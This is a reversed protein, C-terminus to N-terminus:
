FPLDDYEERKEDNGFLASVLDAVEEDSYTKDKIDKQIGQRQEEFLTLKNNNIIENMKLKTVGISHVYNLELIQEYNFNHKLLVGELKFEPQGILLPVHLVKILDEINELYVHEIDGVSGTFFLVETKLTKWLEDFARENLFNMFIVEIMIIPLTFLPDKKYYVKLYTDGQSLNKVQKKNSTRFLNYIITEVGLYGFYGMNAPTPLLPIRILSIKEPLEEIADVIEESIVTNRKDLFYCCCPCSMVEDCITAEVYCREADTRKISCHPFNNMILKEIFLTTNVLFDFRM